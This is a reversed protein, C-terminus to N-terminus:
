ARELSSKREKTLGVRDTQERMQEVQSQMNQVKREYARHLKEEIM